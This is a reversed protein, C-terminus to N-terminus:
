FILFVSSFEFIQFFNVHLLYQDVSETFELLQGSLSFKQCKQRNKAMVFGEVFNNKNKQYVTSGRSYTPANELFMWTLIKEILIMTDERCILCAANSKMEIAKSDKLSSLILDSGFGFFLIKYSWLKKDMSYVRLMKEQIKM